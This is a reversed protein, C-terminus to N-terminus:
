GRSVAQGIIIERCINGRLRNGTPTEPDRSRAHGNSRMIDLIESLSSGNTKPYDSLGQSAFTTVYIVIIVQFLLAM